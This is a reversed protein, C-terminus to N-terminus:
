QKFLFSRATLLWTSTNNKGFITTWISAKADTYNSFPTFFKQFGAEGAPPSPLFKASQFRNKPTQYFLRFFVEYFAGKGAEGAPPNPEKKPPAFFHVFLM